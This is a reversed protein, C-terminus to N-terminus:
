TLQSDKETPPFNEQSDMNIRELVTTALEWLLDNIKNRTTIESVEAYISLSALSFSFLM